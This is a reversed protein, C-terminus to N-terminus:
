SGSRFLNIMLNQTADGFQATCQDQAAVTQARSLCQQYTWQQPWTMVLVASYLSFLGSIAIATVFFAITGQAFPTRIAASLGRIALVMTLIVLGIGVAPWPLPMSITVLAGITSGMAFLVLRNIRGLQNRQEKPLNKIEKQLRARREARGERPQKPEHPGPGPQPPPPPPPSSQPPQFPNSM